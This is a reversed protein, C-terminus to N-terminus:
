RPWAEHRRLGTSEVLCGAEEVFFAHALDGDLDEYVPGLLPPPSGVGATVEDATLEIIGEAEKPHSEAAARAAAARALRHQERLQELPKREELKQARQEELQREIKEALEQEYMRRLEAMSPPRSSGTMSSAEMPGEKTAAPAPPIAGSDANPESCVQRCLEDLSFNITGEGNAEDSAVQDTLQERSEVQREPEYGRGQRGMQVCEDNSRAADVRSASAAAPQEAQASRAMSSFAGKRHRPPPATTQEAVQRVDDPEGCALPDSVCLEGDSAKSPTLQREVGPADEQVQTGEDISSTSKGEVSSAVTAREPPVTPALSSFAGKRRRPKSVTDSEAIEDLQAGGAM